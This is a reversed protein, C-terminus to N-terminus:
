LNEVITMLQNLNMKKKPSFWYYGNEATNVYINDSGFEITLEILEGNKNKPKLKRLINLDNDLEKKTNM